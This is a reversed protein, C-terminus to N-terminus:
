KGPADTDPQSSPGCSQSYGFGYPWGFGWRWPTPLEPVGGVRVAAFYVSALHRHGANEICSRLAKDANRREECSGGQWYARDHTVCCSRFNLDPAGTCGDTTFATPPDDAWRPLPTLCGTLTISVVCFLVAMPTNMAPRAGQHSRHLSHANGPLSDAPARGHSPELM